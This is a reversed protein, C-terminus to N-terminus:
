IFPIERLAVFDSHSIDNPSCAETNYRRNTRQKYLIFLTLAYIFTGYVMLALYSCAAGAEGYRKSYLYM